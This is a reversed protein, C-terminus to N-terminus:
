NAVPDKLPYVSIHVTVYTELFVKDVIVDDGISCWRFLVIVGETLDVMLPSPENIKVLKFFEEIELDFEIGLYKVVRYRSVVLLVQEVSEVLDTLPM